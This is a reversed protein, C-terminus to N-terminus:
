ADAPANEDVTSRVLDLTSEAETVGEGEGELENELSGGGGGAPREEREPRARIGMWTVVVVAVEASGCFSLRDREEVGGAAPGGPLFCTLLSCAAGVLLVM